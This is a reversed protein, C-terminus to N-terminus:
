KSLTRSSRDEFLIWLGIRTATTNRIRWHWKLELNLLQNTDEVSLHTLFPLYVIVSFIVVKSTTLNREEFFLKSFVNLFFHFLILCLIQACLSNYCVCLLCCSQIAPSSTCKIFGNTFLRRGSTKRWDTEMTVFTGWM